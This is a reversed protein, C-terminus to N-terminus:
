VGLGQHHFVERFFPLQTAMSATDVTKRALVHLAMSRDHVNSDRVVNERAACTHLNEQLTISAAEDATKLLSTTAAGLEKPLDEATPHHYLNTM